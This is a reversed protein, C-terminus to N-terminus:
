IVEGNITDLISSIDGIRANLVNELTGKGINYYGSKNLYDNYTSIQANIYGSNDVNFGYNIASMKVVGATSSTAYDTNKVYDALSQHEQLATDAKGLSTQVDSALDTKPIGTGPKDYKGGWTTKETDSVLRHTSDDTLQSLQTPIESKLAYDTLDVQIGIKGLLEWNGNIYIYEAYNNEQSEPTALPVLYITDDAGTSPLQNVIVMKIAGPEGKDGKLDVFTYESDGEIRIGLSTGQWLYEMSKGDPITIEQQTGDKRTIVISTIKCSKSASLNLTDMEHIKANGIEIWEEYGDPAEGVANISSNVIVYFDNSKFIPVSENNTTEDVVLQMYIKGAKTIVNKVPTQYTEGVKDLNIFYKTGDPLLIELRAYGDVFEDDFSFILNEQLNEGDNGIVKKSLDQIMRTAKNIIININEM